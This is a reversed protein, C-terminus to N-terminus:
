TDILFSAGISDALLRGSTNLYLHDATQVLHGALKWKQIIPSFKELVTDGFKNELKALDIGQNMRLGFIFTDEILTQTSIIQISEEPFSGKNIHNIWSQLSPQNNWRRMKYQSAAAPGLGLWDKMEWTNLNHQCAFGPTAFNSIEYQTYGYSSLFDWTKLYLNTEEERNTKIEGRTLKWYLPTDDEITLCYTSIHAPKFAIAETLDKKLDDWSQSPLAFMLDLNWNEFSANEILTIASLIQKRSHRRGIKNLLNDSFSQVGLSIRNVGIEKLIKIKTKTVLSPAMEVTWEKFALGVKERIFNGIKEWDKAALLGPTGGGFFLTEVPKNVERLDWEKELLNLYTHIEGNEPVKQYFACFDCSTQCFPVHIYLGLSPYESKIKKM